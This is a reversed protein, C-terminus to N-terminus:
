EAGLLVRRGEEAAVYAAYIVRAVQLGLWGDAAPPTGSRLADAFARIMGLQGSSFDEDVM